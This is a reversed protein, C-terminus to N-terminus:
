DKAYRSRLTRAVDHALEDRMERYFEWRSPVFISATKVTHGTLARDDGSFTQWETAWSRSEWVRDNWLERGTQTDVARMGLTLGASVEKRYTTLTGKVKEMIDVKTSDNIKKEGVKYEKDSYVTTCSSSTREDYPSYDTVQMQVAQHIPYGDGANEDPPYLRM